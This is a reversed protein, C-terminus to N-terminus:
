KMEVKMVFIGYRQRPLEIWGAIADRRHDAVEGRGIGRGRDQARRAIRHITRDIAQDIARRDELEVPRRM